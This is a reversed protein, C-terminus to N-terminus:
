RMERLATVHCAAQANCIRGRASASRDLEGPSAGMNGPPLRCCRVWRGGGHCGASADRLPRRGDDSPAPRAPRPARTDAGEISLFPRPLHPAPTARACVRPAAPTVDPARRPADCGYAHPPLDQGLIVRPVRPAAKIHQHQECCRNKELQRLGWVQM